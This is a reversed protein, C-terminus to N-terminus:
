WPKFLASAAPEDWAEEQVGCSRSERSLLSAIEGLVVALAPALLPQLVAARSGIHSSNLMVEPPRIYGVVGDTVEYRRRRPWNDLSM